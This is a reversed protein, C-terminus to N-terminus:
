RMYSTSVLQAKEFSKEIPLLISFNDQGLSDYRNYIVGLSYGGDVRYQLGTTFQYNDDGDVGRGRDIKEGYSILALM